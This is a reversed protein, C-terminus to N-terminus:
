KTQIFENLTSIFDEIYDINSTSTEIFPNMITMRILILEDSDITGHWKEVHNHILESYVNTKVTTRSVIYDPMKFHSSFREIVKLTKQNSVSLSEREKAISFCVINSDTSELVRISPNALYLNRALKQAMLITRSLILGYGDEDMGITMASLYTAVAGAASRSGEITVGGKDKHSSFRLYPADLKGVTYNKLNQVLISGSSYPVYGLKHADVTLSTASAITNLDKKIEAGRKHCNLFDVTCFYGGYAADIHFWTQPSNSNEFECITKFINAIPDIAGMETTGAVAVVMLINRNESKSKNLLEKLHNVKAHGNRDLEIEWVSDNSLGILSAGKTWSYHRHGPVIILPHKYNIKFIKEYNKVVNFYDGFLLHYSEISINKKKCKELLTEYRDWGLFSISHFDFLEIQHDQSAAAVALWHYYRNRARLIAETNAITGGSTFHGFSNEANFGVMQSLEQIAKEEILAGAKSTEGTINNPNHLLTVLHGLLAPISTESFMHAMYRPSHNPIEESFMELVQFLKERMKNQKKVFELNLQDSRSISIGDKSYLSKRWQFWDNLIDSVLLQFLSANESQPGLFFSKLSIEKPDCENM